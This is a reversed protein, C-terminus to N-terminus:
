CLKCGFFCGTTVIEFEPMQDNVYVKNLIPPKKKTTIKIFAGPSKSYPPPPPIPINKVHIENM